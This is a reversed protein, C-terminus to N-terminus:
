WLMAGISVAARDLTHTQPRKSARIALKFGVSPM